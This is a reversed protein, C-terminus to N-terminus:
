EEFPRMVRSARKALKPDNPSTLKSLDEVTSTRKSRMLPASGSVQHDGLIVQNQLSIIPVFVTLPSEMLQKESSKNPQAPSGIQFQLGSKLVTLLNTKFLFLSEV